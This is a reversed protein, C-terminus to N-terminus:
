TQDLALGLKKDIFGYKAHVVLDDENVTANAFMDSLSRVVFISLSVTPEEEVESHAM